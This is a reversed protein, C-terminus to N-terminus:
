DNAIKINEFFNKLDFYVCTYYSTIKVHCYKNEM